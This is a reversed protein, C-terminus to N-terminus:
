GVAVSVPAYLRQRDGPLDGGFAMLTTTEGASLGHGAAWVGMGAHRGLVDVRVQGTWGGAMALQSILAQAAAASGAVVPGIVRTDGNLWAAGYCLQGSGAPDSILFVEAFTVLEALLERRDAGFVALDAAVIGALDARTVPRAPALAGGALLGAHGGSASTGGGDAPSHEAATADFVGSHQTMTDLARFGLQAYLPRGLATATLYLVSQGAQTIVHQMLRRGLGRRGYRAAVVMMGIAALRRGYTTLVVMGALGPGEPDDIGYVQGAAFLLRWKNEEPPWGRDRALEVCAPLEAPSLRRVPLGSLAPSTM